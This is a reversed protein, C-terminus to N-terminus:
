RGPGTINFDPPEIQLTAHRIGFRVTLLSTATRLVGHAPTSLDVVVHATLLPADGELSWLHLDHVGSVGPIALIQLRIAEVDLGRPTGEMLVHVSRVVLKSSGVIIILAIAVSVAPDAWRWGFFAVAAAAGLAGLSGLLDGGLHLFAARANLGRAHGRLIWAGAVNVALGGAAVAGMLGAEVAPPAAFRRAAEWVIVGCVLLLTVGNALAALTEARAYGYTRGADPPREAIWAAAVALLLALDDTLMHGADALLALSNALLGGVVEAVTYALTLAFILTLRRRAVEPRVDATHLHAM